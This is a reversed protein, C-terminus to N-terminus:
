SKKFHGLQCGPFHRFGFQAITIQRAAGTRALNRSKLLQHPTM